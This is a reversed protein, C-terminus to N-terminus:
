DNNSCEEQTRMLDCSFDFNSHIHTPMISVPNLTSDYYQSETAVPPLSPFHPQNIDHAQSVSTGISSEMPATEQNESSNTLYDNSIAQGHSVNECSSLIETGVTAKNNSKEESSLESGEEKTRLSTLDQTPDDKSCSLHKMLSKKERQFLLHFYSDSDPGKRIQRFGWRYLKRIFSSFKSKRFYNPLIENTFREPDIFIFSRGHPMWTIIDSIDDRSLIQLLKMPFTDDSQNSKSNSSKKPSQHNLSSSQSSSM